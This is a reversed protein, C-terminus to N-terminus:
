GFITGWDTIARACGGGSGSMQIIPMPNGERWVLWVEDDVALDASPFARVGDIVTDTNGDGDAIVGVQYVGPGQVATIIAPQHGSIRNGPDYDPRAETRASSADARAGYIFSVPSTM